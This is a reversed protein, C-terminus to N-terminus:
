ESITRIVSSTPRDDSTAGKVQKTVWEDYSAITTVPNKPKMVVVKYGGAKLDNLLTMLGEATARQFDHMLLIGKGHKKLQSLV